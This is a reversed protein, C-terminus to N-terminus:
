LFGDADPVRVALRSPLYDTIARIDRSRRV